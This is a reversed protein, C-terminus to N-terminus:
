IKRILLKVKLGMRPITKKNAKFFAPGSDHYLNGTKFAPVIVADEAEVASIMNLNMDAAYESQNDTKIFYSGQFVYTNKEVKKGDSWILWDNLAISKNQHQIFIKCKSPQHETLSKEHKILGISVLAFHLESPKIKTSLLSEYDKTKGYSLVFELSDEVNVVEVDLYVENKKIDIELGPSIQIKKSKQESFLLSVSMLCFLLFTQLTKM